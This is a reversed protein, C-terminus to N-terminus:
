YCLYSPLKDICLGREREGVRERRRERREEREENGEGDGEGERQTNIYTHSSFFFILNINIVILKINVPCM